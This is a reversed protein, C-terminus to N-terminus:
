PGDIGCSPLSRGSLFPFTHGRLVHPHINQAANRLFDWFRWCGLCGDASLRVPVGHGAWVASRGNRVSLCFTSVGGRVRMHRSFTVTSVLHSFGTVSASYWTRQSEVSRVTGFRFDLSPFHTPQPKPGPLPFPSCGSMPGQCSEATVFMDQIPNHHHKRLEIFM